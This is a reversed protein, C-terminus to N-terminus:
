YGSCNRGNACIIVIHLVLGAVAVGGGGAGDCTRPRGQGGSYEKGERTGKGKRALPTRAYHM